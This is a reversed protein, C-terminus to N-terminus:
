ASNPYLFPATFYLVILVHYVLEVIGAHFAIKCGLTMKGTALINSQEVSFHKFVYKSSRPVVMDTLKEYSSRWDDM